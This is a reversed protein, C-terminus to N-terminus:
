EIWKNMSEYNNEADKKDAQTGRMNGAIKMEIRRDIDKMEITNVKKEKAILRPVIARVEQTVM